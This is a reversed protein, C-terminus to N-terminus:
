SGKRKKSYVERQLAFVADRFIRFENDKMLLYWVINDLRKKLEPIQHLGHESDSTHLETAINDIRRTLEKIDEEIKEIKNKRM